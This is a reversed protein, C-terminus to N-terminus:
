HDNEVNIQCSLCYYSYMYVYTSVDATIDVEGNDCWSPNIFMNTFKYM